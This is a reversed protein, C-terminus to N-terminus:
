LSEVLTASASDDSVTHRMDANDSSHSTVDDDASTVKCLVKLSENVQSMLMLCLVANTCCWITGTLDLLTTNSELSEFAIYL